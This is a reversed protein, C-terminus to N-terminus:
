ASVPLVAEAAVRPQAQTASEAESPQKEVPEDLKEVWGRNRNPFLHGYTDMTMQIGGYGVQEQIYKPHAGQDILLSVFSHRMDHFRIRRLGSAELCRVWARKLNADDWRACQPSLFVWEAIEQGQAMAELQRTEKLRQLTALLQPSMDVRRIRHNKTTTVRRRVVARQVEIFHGRFDVDGWQLGILEGQRLGARVACLLLPYLVPFRDQATTLLGQVEERTLPSLRTRQEGMGRFLRSVRAVPNVTVMGDEIAQFYAAKLPVLYNRITSQSKGKEVYASVFRTIDKRTLSGFIQSGFAPVLHVDIARKYEEYTSQKCHPKVSGELWEKLYSEVTPMKQDPRALVIPEGGAEAWKLRAALKHAFAEAQKKDKGFFKAKRQGDGDTLVYWGKYRREGTQRDKEWRQRLKVAM